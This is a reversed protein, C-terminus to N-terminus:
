IDAMPLIPYSICPLLNFHFMGKFNKHNTKLKKFIPFSQLYLADVPVVQLPIFLM